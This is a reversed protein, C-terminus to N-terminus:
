IVGTLSFQNINEAKPNITIFNAGGLGAGVNHEDTPLTWGYPIPLAGTKDVGTLFSPLNLLFRITNSEIVRGSFPDVGTAKVTVYKPVIIAYAGLNVSDDSPDPQALTRGTFTILNTDVSTPHIPMYAGAVKTLPHLAETSWEYLIVKVGNLLTSNWEQADFAYTYANQGTSTTAPLAADLYFVSVPKDDADVTEFVNTINRWRRVSDTGTIVLWGGEYDEPYVLRNVTLSYYGYPPSEVSEDIVEGVLGVTGLSADHKVVQFIWVDEPNATSEVEVEISTNGSDQTVTTAYQFVDNDTYPAYYYAYVQGESNTPSTVATQNNNLVGPGDEISITLNIDEVTNGFSDYATAILQVTDVGYSIPGYLNGGISNTNTTLIIEALNKQISTIQLIKNPTVHTLPNINLFQTNTSYRLESDSVEYEVRPVATYSIFIEGTTGAGHKIDQVLTGKVYRDPTTSNYGRVCNLFTNGDRGYYFIEESEILLIGSDPYQKLDESYLVEIETDYDETLKALVLDENQYGGFEVIGLDHDVVFHKDTGRSYALTTQETWFSLVGNEIVAVELSGEQIPFYKTFKLCGDAIGSGKNEWISAITALANTSEYDYDYDIKGINIVPEQNFLVYGDDIVYENFRSSFNNKLYVGNSETSLRTDTSENIEGTFSDVFDFNKFKFIESTTKREWIAIDLSSEVAQTDLLHAYLTKKTFTPDVIEAFSYNSFLFRDEWLFSWASTNVQPVWLNKNLAKINFLDLYQSSGSEFFDFKLGEELNYVQGGIFNNYKTSLQINSELRKRDYQWGSLEEELAYVGTTPYYKNSRTIFNEMDMSITEADSTGYSYDPDLGLLSGVSACNGEVFYNSVAAIAARAGAATTPSSVWFYSGGTEKGSASLMVPQFYGTGFNLEYQFDGPTISTYFSTNETWITDTLVQIGNGDDLDTVFIWHWTSVGATVSRSVWTAYWASTSGAAGAGGRQPFNIVPTDPITYGIGAQALRLNGDTGTTSEWRINFLRGFVSNLIGLGLSNSSALPLDHFGFNLVAFDVLPANLGTSNERFDGYGPFASPLRVSGGNFNYITSTSYVTNFLTISRSNGSIDAPPVTYNTADYTGPHNLPDSAIWAGSPISFSCAM